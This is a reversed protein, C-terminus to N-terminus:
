ARCELAGKIVGPFAIANDEFTGVFLIPEAARNYGLEVLTQEPIFEDDSLYLPEQLIYFGEDEVPILSDVYEEDRILYGKDHFSWRNN